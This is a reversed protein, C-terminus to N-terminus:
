FVNNCDIVRKIEEERFAPPVSNKFKNENIEGLTNVIWVADPKLSSLSISNPIMWISFWMLWQSLIPELFPLAKLFCLLSQFDWNGDEKLVSAILM